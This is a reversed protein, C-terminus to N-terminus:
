DANYKFDKPYLIYESMKGDPDIDAPRFGIKRCFRREWDETPNYLVPDEPNRKFFFRIMGTFLERWAKINLYEPMYDMVIYGTNFYANWTTFGLCLPTHYDEGKVRTLGDVCYYKTKGASPMYRGEYDEGLYEEIKAFGYGPLNGKNGNRIFTRLGEDSDIKFFRFGTEDFALENSYKVTGKFGRYGNLYQKIANKYRGSAFATSLVLAKSGVNKLIPKNDATKPKGKRWEGLWTGEYVNWRKNVWHETPNRPDDPPMNNIFATIMKAGNDSLMAINQEEDVWINIM